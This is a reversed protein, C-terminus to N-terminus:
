KAVMAFQKRGLQQGNKTVTVTVDWSGAMLVPASGRYVGGSTHPLKTESQMAPMNMTPMAPMFQRVAVDADIVPQGKPDKVTVQFASEGTKPPDPDSRFTIDFGSAAPAASSVPAEYNQIGARLQSESDLFFTANTAVQEGEKLGQLVETRDASRRGIKVTRPSFVGDGTTVFVIQQTGSDLIANTPVSLGKGGAGRLQVNAYMGPKLRGGANAFQFRVKVTRSKEEVFPYVYTARGEFTEGPYADLAVTARQGVRIQPLDQEYLDAEVWVTSLEAVKYLTQGPTVHM